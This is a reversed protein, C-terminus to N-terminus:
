WLSALAREYTAQYRDNAQWDRCDDGAMFDVRYTEFRDGVVQEKALIDIPCEKSRELPTM